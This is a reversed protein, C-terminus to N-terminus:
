GWEKCDQTFVVTIEIIKYDKRVLQANHITGGGQTPSQHGEVLLEYRKSQHLVYENATLDSSTIQGYMNWIHQMIDLPTRTNFRTISHYISSIYKVEISNVIMNHLAICVNRFIQYENSALSRLRTAQKIQCQTAVPNFAPALGPNTPVVYVIDNNLEM